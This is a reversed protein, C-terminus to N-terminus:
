MQREPTCVSPNKPAALPQGKTAEGRKVEKGESLIRAELSLTSNM